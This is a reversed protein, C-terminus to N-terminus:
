ESTHTKDQAVPLIKEPTIRLEKVENLLGHRSVESFFNFHPFLNLLSIM